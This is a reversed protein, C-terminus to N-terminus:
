DVHRILLVDKGKRNWDTTGVMVVHDGAALVSHRRGWDLAFEMQEHLTARCSDTVVARVGWALSLRRATQPNDTLAVIPVPCRLESLAMASRGSRTPAVILDANLQEAAHIAGLTIARTTPAVNGRSTLEVVLDKRSQVLREAELTIRSMMTVSDLPYEGVATEGSLMVADTGDLVANAVDSAEARTPLRHHQMSDLMQTATIVPVGRRNCTRIIQKQIAPVRVIDVEVGLDGRAVMVVDTEAVINELDEVAEPKEIKAVISPAQSPSQQSEILQRLERIDDARRVFSLGVFDLGQAVAWQLDVRDKDTLCPVRLNAGPLNIGQRSRVTGGQEVACIVRDHEKKVVRLTITGDALLVPNGVDLDDILGDYTATMAHPDGPAPQRVFSCRDGRDLQLADNPLVGLRIKPGGLDGLIGIARELEDGIRRVASVVAALREYDAHAFNLRFVDVGANVLRRLQPEAWCAPGVTAVIKTKTLPREEYSDHALNM